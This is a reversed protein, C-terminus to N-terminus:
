GSKRFLVMPTAQAARWAPYASAVLAGVGLALAAKGTTTWPMSFTMAANADLSVRLWALLMGLVVGAVLGFLAIIFGEVVFQLFIDSRSAGEARRLAIERRRRLSALLLINALVVLGIVLFLSVLVDNLRMYGDIEPNTVVGLLMNSSVKPVRSAGVLADYLRQATAEVALPDVRVFIWSLHTGPVEARPLYVGLGETLSRPLEPTFGLQQLLDKVVDSLARGSEFGFRDIKRQAADAVVATVRLRLARAAVAPSASDARAPESATVVAFDAGSSKTRWELAFERGILEAFRASDVEASEIGLLRRALGSELVVPLVPSVAVADNAGVAPAVGSAASLFASLDGALVAIRRGAALEADAGLIWAAVAPAPVDPVASPASSSTPAAFVAAATTRLASLTAAGAAPLTARLAPLDSEQPVSRPQAADGPSIQILDTDLERARSVASARSAEIVASPVIALAVGWIVGQSLLVTRWPHRRCEGWATAVATSFVRIRM